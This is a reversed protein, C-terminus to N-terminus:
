ALGWVAWSEPFDRKLSTMYLIFQGHHLVEHEALRILHQELTVSEGYWDIVLNSDASKLLALMRKDLEQLYTLLSDKKLGGSYHATRPSFAIKKSALADTYNEQVRGIHRFHKWFPSQDPGPSFSLDADSLLQLLDRTRRRHYSFNDFAPKWTMPEVSKSM